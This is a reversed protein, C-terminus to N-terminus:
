HLAQGWLSKERRPCFCLLKVPEQAAARNKKKAWVAILVNDGRQYSTRDAAVKLSVYSKSM